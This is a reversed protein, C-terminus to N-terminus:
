SWAALWQDLFVLSHLAATRDERGAAHIAAAGRMFTADLLMSAPSDPRLASELLPSGDRLWRGLPM